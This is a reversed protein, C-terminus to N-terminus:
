SSANTLAEGPSLYKKRLALVEAKSPGEYPSPVYDFAPMEAKVAAGASSAHITRSTPIGSRGRKLAQHAIRQM